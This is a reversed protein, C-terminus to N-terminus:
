LCRAVDARGNIGLYVLFFLTGNDHPDNHDSVEDHYRAVCAECRPIVSSANEMLCMCEKEAHDDDTDKDCKESRRVVPRCVRMCKGPVEDAELDAITGIVNSLLLLSSLSLLNKLHM